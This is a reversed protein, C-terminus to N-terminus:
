RTLLFRENVPTLVAQKVNYVSAALVIERFQRYWSRASVSDLVSRKIASNVTETLARQNYRDTDM